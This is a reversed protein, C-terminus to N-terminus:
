KPFGHFIRALDIDVKDDREHIYGMPCYDVCELCAICTEQDIKM